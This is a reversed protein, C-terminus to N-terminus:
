PLEESVRNGYYFFLLVCVLNSVEASSRGSVPILRVQDVIAPDAQKHFYVKESTGSALSSVTEDAICYLPDGKFVRVGVEPLGDEGIQM